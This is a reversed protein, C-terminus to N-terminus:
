LTVGSREALVHVVRDQFAEDLAAPNPDRRARHFWYGFDRVANDETTALWDQTEHGAELDDPAGPGGMRTAVWGPDVAHAVTEERYRPLAAAFATILLKSDAYSVSGEHQMDVTPSGSLHMGSSLYVHRHVQPSLATMLYPALVNIAFIQGGTNVGANHIIADVERAAVEDAIARVHSESALDGIVLTAGRDLLPQLVRAREDSRAHVIVENGADLLAEASRRGLGDTSGTVLVRSM